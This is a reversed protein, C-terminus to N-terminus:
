FGPPAYFDMNDYCSSGGDFSGTRSVYSNMLREPILYQLLFNATPDWLFMYVGRGRLYVGQNTQGILGRYYPVSSSFERIDVTHNKKITYNVRNNYNEPKIGGSPFKKAIFDARQM